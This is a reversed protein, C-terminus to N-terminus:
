YLYIGLYSFVFKIVYFIGIILAFKWFYSNNEQEDSLNKIAFYLLVTSLVSCFGSFVSTIKSIGSNILTLLSVIESIVVPIKAVLVTSVIALFSKNKNKKFGYILCAIAGISVIPSLVDKLINLFNSFLHKFFYSFSGLYGFFYVKLMSFIDAFLITVLWIIFIIIATKLFANKSDNAVKRLEEIPNKIFNIFFGKAAKTDKKIDTNKITDKVDQITQTTEKKLEDSTIKFNSNEKEVNLQEEEKNQNEEM